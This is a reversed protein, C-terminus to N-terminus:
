TMKDKIRKRVHRSYSDVAEKIDKWMQDRHQSNGPCLELVARKLAGLREPHLKSLGRVGRCNSAMREEDLFLMHGLERAIKKHDPAFARLPLLVEQKVVLQQVGNEDTITELKDMVDEMTESKTGSSNSSVYLSLLHQYKGSQLAVAQKLGAVDKELASIRTLQDSPFTPIILPTMLTPSLRSLTPTPLPAMTSFSTSAAISVPYPHPQSVPPLLSSLQFAGSFDSDKTNSELPASPEDNTVSDRSPPLPAGPEFRGSEVTMNDKAKKRVHRSYADVAEIVEKWRQDQEESNGPCLQLVARKMASLRKPDLRDMGRVGRCNSKLREEALFLVNALERGIKKHDPVLATMHHLVERRVVLQQEGDEDTITELKDMIDAMTQSKTLYTYNRMYISMLRQYKEDQLPIAEKLIAVERELVDIRITQESHLTLPVHPATQTHPMPTTMQRLCPPLTPTSAQPMTDLTSVSISIPTPLPQSAPPVLTSSQFALPADNTVNDRSLPLPAGPEFRGTEVTLYDKAKRRVHRSSADVAEKVAKWRQDQEESNGPCLKLVARKMANLRKPDLRDMGRVGRCNSKLREQDLFLMNGLERGIKKHDPVLTALPQLVEQRVVLQQEGDKNTITELRDMVDDMTQGGTLNPPVLSQAPFAVSAGSDVDNRSPSLPAEPEDPVDSIEVTKKASEKIKDLEKQLKEFTAAAKEQLSRLTHGQPMIYEFDIDDEDEQDQSDQAPEDMIVDVIQEEAGSTADGMEGATKKVPRQKVVEDEALASSKRKRSESTQSGKSPGQEDEEGLVPTQESPGPHEKSSSPGESDAEDGLLSTQKSPGPNEERSSQGEGATENEEVLM